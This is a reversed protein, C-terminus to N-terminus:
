YRTGRIRESRRPILTEAVAAAAPQKGLSLFVPCTEDNSSEWPLRHETHAVNTSEIMSATRFSPRRSYLALSAAYFLTSLDPHADLGTYIWNLWIVQEERASARRSVRVFFRAFCKKHINVISTKVEENTSDQPLYVSALITRFTIILPFISRVFNRVVRYLSKMHCVKIKYFINCVGSITVVATNNIIFWSDNLWTRQWQKRKNAMESFFAPFIVRVGCLIHLTHFKKFFNNYLDIRSIITKGRVDIFRLKTFFTAFM